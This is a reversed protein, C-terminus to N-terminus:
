SPRLESGVERLHRLVMAYSALASTEQYSIGREECFSRVVPAAQRLNAMPMSPFLHHEIQYNLGGMVVDTVRSGTVNRSTLVQRLLPDESEELSMVPMGKHAPAFTCGLYVGQLGKHVALFVLVQQWSLTTALLAAYGLFHLALFGGEVARHRLGPRAVAVISSLHLNMAELLLFPFFLAAQHRTTWAAIGRRGAVHSADFVLAGPHVDPDTELDNPHAHHANHKDVWWGYSLGALLNGSVLGLVTSARRSRFVQRHGVDHGFFGMQTSAVAFVPALLVLLWSRQWLLMAMVIGSQVAVNLVLHGSYFGPRRRLLGAQRVRGLLESYGGTGVTTTPPHEVTSM